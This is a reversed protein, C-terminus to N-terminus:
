SKWLVCFEEYQKTKFGNERLQNIKETDNKIIYVANEDMQEPIEFKYKGYEIIVGNEIQLNKNFEEPSIPTAVLTYIYTQNLCNEVYIKDKHLEEAKRSAEIIEEEFYMLDTHAFETFYYHVFMGFQLCYALVIFIWAYKLNRSIVNLFRGAFYVMPIYIANIKNINLEAICLGLVLVVVFTVLMVFDLSFEKQKSKRVVERVVEILGFVVLAISLKYLTGFAPVANYNLFDKIFLIEFIQHMNGSINKFSIEGGRYFWLKPISFVPINANEIIGKNFALMMILPVALIGLPIAMAIINKINIKKMLLRYGMVIGIVAPVVIYAIAYTYLTLGFLIGALVYWHCKQTNLAKVFIFISVTLLSGMLYSELGWRSKMIFFPSIAFIFATFLAEKKSNNEDIMKFLCLICLLSLLIAPLRFIVTNAGFIKIFIAALYTYLANQGGGFNVFYVPLKYLYRDVGYKSICIADYLAGAEDVHLGRPINEIKYLLVVSSVLFIFIVFINGYKKIWESEKIREEYSGKIEKIKTVVCIILTIFFLFDAM